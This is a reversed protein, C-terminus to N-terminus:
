RVDPGRGGRREHPGDGHGDEGGRGRSAREPATGGRPAAGGGREGAGGGGTVGVLGGWARTNTAYLTPLTSPERAITPVSLPRNLATVTPIAATTRRSRSVLNWYAATTAIKRPTTRM